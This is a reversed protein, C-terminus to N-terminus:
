EAPQALQKSALSVLEALRSVWLSAVEPDTQGVPEVSPIWHFRHLPNLCRQLAYDELTWWEGHGVGSAPQYVYRYLDELGVEFAMTRISKGSFTSDLNVPILEQGWEGGLRKDLKFLSERLRVPPEDFREALEAMHTKMLKAKGRGYSQYDAYSQPGNQDLWLLLVGTEALLRNHAAGHEGCWMHPAQLMAVTARAARSILGSIVEQKRPDHLDLETSDLMDLFRVYEATAAEVVPHGLVLEAESPPPEAELPEPDDGADDRILCPSLRSNASWFRRAWAERRRELEQDNYYDAAKRASFSSRIMSDAMQVTDPDRPYVKLVDIMDASASFDKTLVGWTIGVFKVM